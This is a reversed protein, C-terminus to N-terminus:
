LRAPQSVQLPDFTVTGNPHTDVSWAALHVHVPRAQSGTVEALPRGAVALETSPQAPGRRFESILETLM